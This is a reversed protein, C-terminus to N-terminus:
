AGSQWRRPPSCRGCVGRGSQGFVGTAHAEDVMLTADYKEALDALEVLPALDGDMSFVTDTVIMRRRFGAAQRMMKNLYRVDGYPYVQIRAGSLRCGDIISAHNKADSFVVDGRDVLASITGVNAAFGSPFLLAAQTGEFEAIQQELRAHLCGRGTILPSAGSGWGVQDLSEAVAPVLCRAALGLYDNSSFNVFRQGDLVIESGAQPGERVRLRRRLGAADLSDLEEDIWSLPNSM